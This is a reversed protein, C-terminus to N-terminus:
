KNANSVASLLRNANDGRVQWSMCRVGGGMFCVGKSNVPVVEKSTLAQVTTLVTKDEATGFQPLYVRNRTVLANTYLGCASGFRDDYIESDDYPTAIEHIKVGPLGRKLDSKLQKAYDPDEPYSNIILKNKDIFSVVGDAHELGGQEDAEIFAVNNISSHRTLLKRAKTESINNDKLFKTSIVVNGYYDDVFNGGDNLLDSEKFRLGAKSIFEYFLEQVEDSASQNDQAAATYRFMIPDTANSLTFDRMWIDLMPMILVHEQGLADIYDPARTKDTLVLVRDKSLIQEAFGIHFDFIDDEMDQYYGDGLSPSALVILEAQADIAM